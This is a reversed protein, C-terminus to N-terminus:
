RIKTSLLPYLENKVWHFNPEIKLAKDFYLKANNYDNIEL